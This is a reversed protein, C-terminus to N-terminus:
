VAGLVYLGRQPVPRDALSSPFRLQKTPAHIQRIIHLPLHEKDKNPLDM